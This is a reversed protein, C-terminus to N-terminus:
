MKGPSVISLVDRERRKFQKLSVLARVGKVNPTVKSADAPIDTSALGM